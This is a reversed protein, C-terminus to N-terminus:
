IYSSSGNLDCPLLLSFKVLTVFSSMTVHVEVLIVTPLCSLHCNWFIDIWSVPALESREDVHGLTDKRSSM